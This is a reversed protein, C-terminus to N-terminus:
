RCARRLMILVTCFIISFRYAVAELILIYFLGTGWFQSPGSKHFTDTDTCLISETSISLSILSALPLVM